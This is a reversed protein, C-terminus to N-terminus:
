KCFHLTQRRDDYVCATWQARESDDGRYCPCRGGPRRCGGCPWGVRKCDCKRRRAPRSCGQGRCSGTAELQVGVSHAVPHLVSVIMLMPSVSGQYNTSHFAFGRGQKPGVTRRCWMEVEAYLARLCIRQRDHGCHPAHHSTRQLIILWCAKITKCIEIDQIPMWNSLQIAFSAPPEATSRSRCRYTDLFYPLPFWSLPIPYPEMISIVLCTIRPLM